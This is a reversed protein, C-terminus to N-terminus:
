LPSSVYSHNANGKWLLHLTPHSSFPLLIPVLPVLRLHLTHINSHTSNTYSRISLSILPVLYAPPPSPPPSLLPTSPTLLLLKSLSHTLVPPCLKPPPTCNKLISCDRAAFPDLPILHKLPPSHSAHFAQLPM